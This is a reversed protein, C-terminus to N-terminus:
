IEEKKNLDMIKCFIIAVLTSILTAFLGPGIVNTPNISGYQSRYAIINVPVLQLSSINIILFICMENTAIPSKKGLKSLEEMAKLGAPTAAWGLGLLNSVINLTIYERAKHMKPIRPFLFTIFPEMKKTIVDILGSSRAIEMLGMWFAMIGFMTICLSISEKAADFAGNTISEINGTLTAYVVGIMIMIAWIYNLM